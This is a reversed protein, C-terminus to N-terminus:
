GDIHARFVFICKCLMEEDISCLILRLLGGGHGTIMGRILQQSAM